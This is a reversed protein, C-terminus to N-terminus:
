RAYERGKMLLRMFFSLYFYKCPVHKDVTICDFAGFAHFM